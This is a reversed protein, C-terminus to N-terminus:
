KATCAYAGHSYAGCVRGNKLVAGCRHLKECDKTKCGSAAKNFELCVKDGNRLEPSVKRGAVTIPPPLDPVQQKVPTEPPTSPRTAPPTSPAPRSEAKPHVIEWHSDRQLMVSQIVQGLTKTSSGRFHEVWVAREAQDLRELWALRSGEPQLMMCRKARWYYRQVVDLPVHVVAASDNGLDKDAEASVGPLVHVGAYALALLYTFLKDLYSHASDSSVDEPEVADDIFLASAIKRRKKTQMVQHALSKVGHVNYVMLIRREM